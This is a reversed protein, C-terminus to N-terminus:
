LYPCRYCFTHPWCPSSHMPRAFRLHLIFGNINVVIVKNGAFSQMIRRLVDAGFVKLDVHFAIGNALREYQQMSCRQAFAEHMEAPSYFANHGQAEHPVRLLMLLLVLLGLKMINGM